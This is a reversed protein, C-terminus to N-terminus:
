IEAFERRSGVASPHNCEVVQAHGQALENLVSKACGECFDWM